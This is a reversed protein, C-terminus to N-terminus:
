KKRRQKQIAPWFLYLGVGITAIIALSGLGIAIKGTPVTTLPKLEESVAMPVETISKGAKKKEANHKKLWTNYLKTDRHLISSHWALGDYFTGTFRQGFGIEKEFQRFQRYDEEVRMQIEKPVDTRPALGRGIVRNRLDNWDDRQLNLYSEAEWPFLMFDDLETIDELHM